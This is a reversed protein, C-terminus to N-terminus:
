SISFAIGRPSDRSFAELPYDAMRLWRPRSVRVHGLSLAASSGEIRLCHKITM